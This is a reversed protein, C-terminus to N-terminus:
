ALPQANWLDSMTPQPCVGDPDDQKHGWYGLMDFVRHQKCLFVRRYHDGPCEAVAVQEEPFLECACVLHADELFEEGAWLIMSELTGRKPLCRRECEDFARNWLETADDRGCLQDHTIDVGGRRVAALLNAGVNESEMLKNAAEMSREAHYDTISYQWLSDGRHWTPKQLQGAEDRDYCAREECWEMMDPELVDQVADGQWAKYVKDWNADFDYYKWAM